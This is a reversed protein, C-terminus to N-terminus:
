HRLCSPELTREAIARLSIRAELTSILKETRHICVRLFIHSVQAATKGAWSGFKPQEVVVKKRPQLRDRKAQCVSCFWKLSQDKIVEDEIWPDHCRQHWPDNCGDCFVMQNTAPSHMRMCKKCLAQEATRKGLQARKKANDEAAPDYTDPKLIHRGSKTTTPVAIKSKPKKIGEGYDSAEAASSQDSVDDYGRKRKQSSTSPPALTNSRPSPFPLTASPTSPSSSRTPISSRSSQSVSAAPREKMAEHTEPPAKAASGSSATASTLATPLGGPEGRMRKLIMQTALSFQPVYPTRSLRPQPSTTKAQKTTDQPHSLSSASGSPSPMPQGAATSTTPVSSVSAASLGTEQESM